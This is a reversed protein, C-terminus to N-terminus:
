GLRKYYIISNHVNNDYDHRSWLAPADLRVFPFLGPVIARLFDDTIGDETIGSWSFSFTIGRLEHRFGEM